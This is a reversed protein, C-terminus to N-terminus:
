WTEKEEDDEQHYNHILPISKVSQIETDKKGKWILAEDTRHPYWTGITEEKEMNYENNGFKVKLGMKEQKRDDDVHHCDIILQAVGSWAEFGIIYRVTCKKLERPRNAFSALEVAYMYKQITKTKKTKIASQYTGFNNMACKKDEIYEYVDITGSQPFYILLDTHSNYLNTKHVRPMKIVLAAPLDMALVRCIENSDFVILPENSEFTILRKNLHIDLM